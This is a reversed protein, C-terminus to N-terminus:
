RRCPRSPRPRARTAASSAMAAMPLPNRRTTRRTSSSSPKSAEEAEELSMDLGAVPNLGRRRTRAGHGGQGYQHRPASKGAERTKGRAKAGKPSLKAKRGEEVNAAVSGDGGAREREKSSTRATRKSSGPAGPALEALQSPDRSRPNPPPRQSRRKRPLRLPGTPYPAPFPCALCRSRRPKQLAEGFGEPTQPTPTKPDDASSKPPRKSM